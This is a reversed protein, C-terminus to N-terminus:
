CRYLLFKLLLGAILIRYFCIVCVILVIRFLLVFSVFFDIKKMSKSPKPNPNTESLLFFIFCFLVAGCAVLLWFTSRWGLADFPSL